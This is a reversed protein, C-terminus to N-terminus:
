NLTVQMRSSHGYFFKKVGGVAKQFYTKSLIHIQSVTIASYPVQIMLLSEKNKPM